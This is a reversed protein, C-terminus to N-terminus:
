AAIAVDSTGCFESSTNTTLGPVDLTNVSSFEEFLSEVSNSALQTFKLKEEQLKAKLMLELRRLKKKAARQDEWLKWDESTLSEFVSDFEKNLKDWNAM